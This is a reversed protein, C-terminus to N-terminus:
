KLRGIEAAVRTVVRRTAHTSDDEGEYIVETFLDGGDVQAQVTNKGFYLVSIRLKHMLELVDSQSILPNWEYEWGSDDNPHFLVPVTEGEDDKDFGVILGFARAADTILLNDPTM